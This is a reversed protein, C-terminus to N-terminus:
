PVRARAVQTVSRGGTLKSVRIHSVLASLLCQRQVYNNDKRHPAPVDVVATQMDIAQKQFSKSM